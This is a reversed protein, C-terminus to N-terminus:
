MSCCIGCPYPPIIFRESHFSYSFEVCVQCREKKSDVGYESESGPDKKERKNTKILDNSHDWVCGNVIIKLVTLACKRTPGSEVRLAHEGHAHTAPVALGKIPRLVSSKKRM